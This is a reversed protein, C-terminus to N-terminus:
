DFENAIEKIIFHSDYSSLNHFVVPINKTIKYNMNCKNHAAGRHTGTFHCHDRVKKDDKTFLKKCVHCRKQNEYSRKEEDILPIMEKKKWHMIREAHEKLIKCLVNMCDKGRYHDLKNKTTDLSRYTFISFGSSTDKIIKTTSSKEPDNSCTSMKELLCEFDVYTGSPIKMSKQGHNCKLINCDKNPMETYCYNHNRCTNEYNKLANETRFSPFCNLCYFDGNNKSRIGRFLMPIDKIALYHWKKGNSIMLLNVQNERNHNYKSVYVPRIQKINYPVYFINLAISNNNKEFTNWDKRHSPFHIDKWDYKNIFHKITSIRELYNDIQEHNLAVSISYQMYKGNNKNKPNITAKKNKIWDPSDTYSGGSSNTSIKHLKYYFARVRDYTLNSKKMKTRLSFQYDDLFSKLLDDVVMNSESGIYVKLRM